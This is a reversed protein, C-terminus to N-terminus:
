QSQESAEQPYPQKPEGIAAILRPLHTVAKKAQEPTLNKIYTILQDVASM